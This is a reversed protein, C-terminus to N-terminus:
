PYTERIWRLRMVEVTWPRSAWASVLVPGQAEATCNDGVITMGPLPELTAYRPKEGKPTEPPPPGCLAPWISFAVFRGDAAREGELGFYQFDPKGDEIQEIQLVVPDGEALVFPIRDWEGPQGVDAEYGLIEGGRVLMWQACEPWRNVPGRTDVHCKDDGDIVWLGDRLRPADAADSAFFLPHDTQVRNCAGLLLAVCLGLLVRM